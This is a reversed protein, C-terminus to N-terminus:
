DTGSKLVNMRRIRRKGVSGREAANAIQIM